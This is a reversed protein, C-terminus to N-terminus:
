TVRASRRAAASANSSGDERLNMDGKRQTTVTLKYPVGAAATATFNITYDTALTETKASCGGAATDNDATVTAIYRSAFASGSPAGNNAVSSRRAYHCSGTVTEGATSANSYSPASLQASVPAACAVL